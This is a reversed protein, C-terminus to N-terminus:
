CAPQAGAAPGAVGAGEKAVGGSLGEARAKETGENLIKEVVAHESWPIEHIGDYNMSKEHGKGFLAM